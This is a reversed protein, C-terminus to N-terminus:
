GQGTRAAARQGAERLAPVWSVILVTLDDHPRVSPLTAPDPTCVDALGEADGAPVSRLRDLLRDVGLEAGDGGVIEIVGDSYAALFGGPALWALGDSWEGPLPGLLPGTPGLLALERGDGMVLHPHGASAYRVAGAAADVDVIVATLFREGTDDLQGSLWSLTEAPSYGSRLAALTLHKTKLAFVAAEAGHGSVDVLAFAVRDPGVRVVDFWDGAVVGEVPVYRSAVVIGPPLEPSGPALEDRVTLVIMARTALADRARNAEDVEALIRRRMAEVQRGLEALDPPGPAPIAQELDGAAVAQVAGELRRLPRTIWRVLFWGTAALFGLALVVSGLRLRSLRSRLVDLRAEEQALEARLRAQLEVIESRAADFLRMGTGTSVLAIAEQDRGARKAEIEYEAGLQRWARVRSRVREAAARLASDEPFLSELEDLRADARAQGERYPTLFQEQGTIIFGREGTEQDVLAQLLDTLAVRAPNLREEVVALSADRESVFHRDLALDAGLLVVFPVFLLQIRRRLRM